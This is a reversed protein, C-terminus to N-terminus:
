QAAENSFKGIFHAHVDFAVPPLDDLAFFRAESADGGPHIEGDFDRSVYCLVLIDGYFGGLVAQADLLLPARCHLGTEEEVERQVAQEISEGAEIFGGPLSWLGRGPEINRKVLLVRGDRQLIAAVSPAPNLYAVYGCSLCLPRLREGDHKLALEGGCLACFKPLTKM